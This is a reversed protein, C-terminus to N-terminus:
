EQTKKNTHKVETVTPALSPFGASAWLILSLSPFVIRKENVTHQHRKEVSTIFTFTVFVSFSCSSLFLQKGYYCYVCSHITLSVALLLSYLLLLIFFDGVKEKKKKKLIRSSLLLVTSMFKSFSFFYFYALPYMRDTFKM